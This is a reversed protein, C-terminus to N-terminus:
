VFIWEDHADKSITNGTNSKNVIKFDEFEM